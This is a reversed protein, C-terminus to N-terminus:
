RGTSVFEKSFTQLGSKLEPGGYCAGSKKSKTKELRLHILFCGFNRCWSGWFMIALVNHTERDGGEEGRRGFATGRYGAQEKLVVQSVRV